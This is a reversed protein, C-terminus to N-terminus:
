PALLGGGSSFCAGASGQLRGAGPARKLCRFAEKNPKGEAREKALYARAPPHVRAQTLVVVHLTATLKRNGLRSLRHRATRGSSVEIPACGAHRALAADSPFRGV